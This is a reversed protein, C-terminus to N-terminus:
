IKDIRRPVIKVIRLRTSLTRTPHRHVCRNAKISRYLLPPMAAFIIEGISGYAYVLCFCLIRKLYDRDANIVTLNTPCRAIRLVMFDRSIPETRQTTHPPHFYLREEHFNMDTLAISSKLSGTAGMTMRIQLLRM